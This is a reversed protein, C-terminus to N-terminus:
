NPILSWDLERLRGFSIQNKIPEGINKIEKVEVLLLPLSPYRVDSTAGPFIYWVAVKYVVFVAYNPKM